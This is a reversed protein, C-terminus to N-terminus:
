RNVDIVVLEPSNNIRPPFLKSDGLGASIILSQRNDLAYKGAPVNVIGGGAAACADIAAQFGPTSDTTDDAVAGFKTVDFM